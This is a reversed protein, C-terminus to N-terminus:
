DCPEGTHSCTREWLRYSMIGNCTYNNCGFQHGDQCTATRASTRLVAPKMRSGPAATVAASSGKLADTFYSPLTPGSHIGHRRGHDM